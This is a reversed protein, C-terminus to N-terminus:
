TVKNLERRAIEEEVKEIRSKITPHTDLLTINTPEQPNTSEIVRLMDSYGKLAPLDAHQVAFADARNECHRSYGKKIIDYLMSTTVYGAAGIAFRKPFRKTVSNNVFRKKVLQYAGEITIASGVNCLNKNLIDNNNLHTAEHLITAEFHNIASREDDSLGEPEQQSREILDLAIPNFAITNKLSAGFVFPNYIEICSFKRTHLNAVPYKKDIQNYWEQAEPSVSRQLDEMIKIQQMIIPIQMLSTIGFASLKCKLGILGIAVYPTYKSADSIITSLTTAETENDAQTIQQSFIVLLFAVLLKKPITKM